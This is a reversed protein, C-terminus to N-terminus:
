GMKMQTEKEEEQRPGERIWRRIKRGAGSGMKKRERGSFAERRGGERRPVRYM